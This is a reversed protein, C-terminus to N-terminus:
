RALRRVQEMYRAVHSRQEISLATELLELATRYREREVEVQAQRIYADAQVKPLRSAREYAMVAEELRNLDRLLDGQCLLAKGNLPDHNLLKKYAKLATKYHKALHARRAELWHLKNQQEQKFPRKQEKSLHRVRKLLVAAQKPNETLIFSEAARLMRNFSPKNKSFAKQYAASARPASGNDLYLDGLAALAESSALGLRDAAELVAIATEQNGLAVHANALLFWMMQNNPNKDILNDLMQVAEQFRDQELLCKVLGIRANEDDPELLLSQRYATEAPVPQGLLLYAYGTLTLTSPKTEGDELVHRLERVATEYQDQKIYVRALNARARSFSPFKKLAKQYGEEAEKLSDMQFYLNARAFDLAASSNDKVLPNLHALAKKMDQNTLAWVKQLLAAEKKSVSPENQKTTLVASGTEDSEGAKVFSAIGPVSLCCLIFVSIIRKM